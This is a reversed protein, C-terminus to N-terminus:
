TATTRTRDSSLRERLQAYFERRPGSAIRRDLEESGQVYAKFQKPMKEVKSRMVRKLAWAPMMSLVARVVAPLATEALVKMHLGTSRDGSQRPAAPTVSYVMFSYEARGHGEETPPITVKAMDCAEPTPTYMASWLSGLPEDLADTSSIIAVNDGKTNTTKSVTWSRWFNDHANVQGLTNARVLGANFPKQLDREQAAAFCRVVDMDPFLMITVIRLCGEKLEFGWKMNLSENAENVPFDEVRSKLLDLSAQYKSIIRLTREVPAPGLVESPVLGAARLRDLERQAELFRGAQTAAHFARVEEVGSVDPVSDEDDEEDEEDEDDESKLVEPALTSTPLPKKDSTEQMVEAEGADKKKDRPEACEEHFGGGESREDDEEQVKFDEGHNPLWRLDPRTSGCGAEGDSIWRYDLRTSGCGSKSGSRSGASRAKSLHRALDVAGMSPRRRNPVFRIESERFFPVEFKADNEVIESEDELLPATAAGDAAGGAGPTPLRLCFCSLPGVKLACWPEVLVEVM